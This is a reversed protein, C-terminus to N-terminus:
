LLGEQKPQKSTGCDCAVTAKEGDISAVVLRGFRRGIM